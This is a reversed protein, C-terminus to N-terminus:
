GPEAQQVDYARVHRITGEVDKEQAGAVRRARDHGLGDQVLEAATFETGVARAALRLASHVRVCDLEQLAEAVVRRAKTRLRPILEGLGARRREIKGEGDAVVRGAFDTRHPGALRHRRM